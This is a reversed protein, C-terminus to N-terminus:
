MGIGDRGVLFSKYKEKGLIHSKEPRQNIGKAEAQNVCTENKPFLPGQDWSFWSEWAM